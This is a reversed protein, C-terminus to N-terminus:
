SDEVRCLRLCAPTVKGWHPEVVSFVIGGKNTNLLKITVLLFVFHETILIRLCGLSIQEMMIIGRLLIDINM